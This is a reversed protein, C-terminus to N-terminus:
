RLAKVLFWLALVATVGHFLYGGISDACFPRKKGSIVEVLTGIICGASILWTVISAIWWWM